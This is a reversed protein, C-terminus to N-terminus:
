SRERTEDAVEWEPKFVRCTRRSVATPKRGEAKDEAAKPVGKNRARKPIM